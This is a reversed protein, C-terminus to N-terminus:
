VHGIVPHPQYLEELRNIEDQSLKVSLSAVADELHGPKSASIIPSTIGPKGLMWALAKQIFPRSQAEDLAWPWRETPKGYTMTGLCIRSVKLGTNGLRVYEM